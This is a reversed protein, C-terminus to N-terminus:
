VVSPATKIDEPSKGIILEASRKSFEFCVRGVRDDLYDRLSVSVGNWWLEGQILSVPVEVSATYGDPIMFRYWSGTVERRWEMATFAEGIPIRGQCQELSSYGPIFVIRKTVTDISKIGLVYRMLVYGVYGAFGHCTSYYDHNHEWLTGPGKELMYGLVKKMERIMLDLIDWEGLCDWRMMYGFFMRSTEMGNFRPMETPYPGMNRIMKRKSEEKWEKELCGTWHLYAQTAESFGFAPFLTNHTDRLIQDSYINGDPHLALHSVHKRITKAKQQFTNDGYWTAAIQLVMQYLANTAVNIGNTRDNAISWEVFVWGAVDELLGQENEFQQLYTLLARIRAEHMDILSCDGTMRRYDELQVLLFLSWNPIFQGNPHDAPFCMPIMGDPLTDVQQAELFDELMKRNLTTDGWFYFAARASFVSDGLWGARERGPCDMFTDLMNLRLTEVSAQWIRTLEGDSCRFDAAIAYPFAFDRVFVNALDVEQDAGYIYIGLYRFTYAEMSEFVFGQDVKLEIFQHCHNDMPNLAGLETLREAYVVRLMGPKALAGSIHIFGCRNTGFDFIVLSGKERNRIGLSDQPNQTTLPNFRKVTGDFPVLELARIYHSAFPAALINMKFYPDEQQEWWLRDYPEDPTHEIFSFFSLVSDPFIPPFAPLPISRPKLTESPDQECIQAPTAHDPLQEPDFSNWHESTFTYSEVTGRQFSMRPTDLKRTTDIWVDWTEDTPIVWNSGDGCEGQIEGLLFPAQQMSYYSPHHYAVLRIQLIPEKTQCFPLIDYSDLRLIGVPSRAPGYGVFQGDIRLEYWTHATLVIRLATTNRQLSVPKRFFYQTNLTSPSQPHMIKQAQTLM